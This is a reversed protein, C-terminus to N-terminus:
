LKPTGLPIEISGSTGAEGAKQSVEDTPATERVRTTRQEVATLMGRLINIENRDLRIRNYLRRLRRMLRRPNEADLFGIGILVRELHGYFREMDAANAMLTDEPERGSAAPTITTAALHMEYTVIQVAAAINLSPFEPHTPIHLQYHCRDLEANSLGSHERGFLVAVPHRRAECVVKEACTRPDLMARAITRPRASAGVVLACDVLAEDLTELVRAHALVDDAGSARATADASPFSKPAVLELRDFGMTKMARAVAGVNGPHTPNVLVIRINDPM